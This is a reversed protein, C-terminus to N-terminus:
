GTRSSTQNTRMDIEQYAPVPPNRLREGEKLLVKIAAFATLGSDRYAELVLGAETEIPPPTEEDGALTGLSVGLAKALRQYQELNPSGDGNLWRSIRQPAIGTLRALDAAIVGKSEMFERVRQM